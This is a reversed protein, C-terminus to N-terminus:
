KSANKETVSKPEYYAITRFHIGKLTRTPERNSPDFEYETRQIWNGHGDVKYDQYYTSAYPPKNAPDRYEQQITNGAADRKIVTVTDMNGSDSISEIESVRGDSDYKYRAESLLPSSTDKGNFITQEVLKTRILQLRCVLLLECLEDVGIVLCASRAIYSWLAGPAFRAIWHCIAFIFIDWRRM